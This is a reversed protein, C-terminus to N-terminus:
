LCCYKIKINKDTHRVKELINGDDQNAKEKLKKLIEHEHHSSINPLTSQHFQLHTIFYIAFLILILIILTKQLRHLRNWHKFLHSFILGTLRATLRYIYTWVRYVSQRSQQKIEITGLNLSLYKSPSDMRILVTFHNTTQRLKKWPIIFDHWEDFALELSLLLLM